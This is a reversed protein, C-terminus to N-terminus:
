LVEPKVKANNINMNVIDVASDYAALVFSVFSDGSKLSDNFFDISRIVVSLLGM